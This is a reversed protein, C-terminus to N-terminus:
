VSFFPINGWNVRNGYAEELADFSIKPKWGERYFCIDFADEETLGVSTFLDVKLTEPTEFQDKEKAKSRVSSYIAKKM